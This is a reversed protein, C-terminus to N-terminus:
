KIVRLQYEAAPQSVGCFKAIAQSSMGHALYAPVMIEAALCKAQWEPDRFPEIKSDGMTRYLKVGSVKIILVHSLEHMITMRDRGIGSVANKYVSQKIRVCNGDVDYEAHRNPPLQDDPVCEYYFEDDGILEHFAELFQPVPFWLESEYGINKRIGKAYQRLQKRSLPEAIVNM